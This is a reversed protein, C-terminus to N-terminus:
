GPLGGRGEAHNRPALLHVNLIPQGDRYSVEATATIAQGTLPVTPLRAWWTPFMVARVPRSAWNLTLVGWLRGSTSTREEVRAIRADLRVTKGEAAADALDEAALWSPAAMRKSAARWIVHDTETTTAALDHAAATVLGILDPDTLSRERVGLARATFRRIMRDPKVGQTGALMHAYHWTVGSAQSPLRLWAMRLGEDLAMARFDAATHVGLDTLMRAAAQIVRAKLPAHVRAYTRNQTGIRNAWQQVGGLDTFTALLEPSGDTAAAPGRYDGYREVVHEVTTYNVGTSQISDIVCLALGNRYGYDESIAWARPPGCSALVANALLRSREAQVSIPM